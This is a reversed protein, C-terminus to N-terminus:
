HLSPLSYALKAWDLQAILPLFHEWKPEVKNVEREGMEGTKLRGGFWIGFSISCWFRVMPIHAHSHHWAHGAAHSRHAQVIRTAEVKGHAESARTCGESSESESVIITAPCLDEGIETIQAGSWQSTNWDPSCQKAKQKKKHLLEIKNSQYKSSLSLEVAALDHQPLMHHTARLLASKARRCLCPNGPRAPHSQRAFHTERETVFLSGQKTLRPLPSTWSGFMGKIGVCM